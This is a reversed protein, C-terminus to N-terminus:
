FTARRKTSTSRKSRPTRHPPPPTLPATLMRAHLLLSTRAHWRGGGVLGCMRPCVKLSLVCGKQKGQDFKAVNVHPYDTTWGGKLVAGKRSESKLNLQGKEDLHLNRVCSVLARLADRQFALDPKLNITKTASLALRGALYAVDGGGEKAAKIAEASKSLMYEEPDQYPKDAFLELATEKAAAHLAASFGGPGSDLAKEIEHCQVKLGAVCLEPRPPGALASPKRRKPTGPSAM